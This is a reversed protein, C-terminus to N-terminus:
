FGGALSKVMECSLMLALPCSKLRQSHLPCRMNVGLYFWPNASVGSSNKMAKKEQRRKNQMKYACEEVTFM